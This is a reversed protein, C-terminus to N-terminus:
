RKELLVVNEVHHTHPFMDVPQVKTVRYKEDLLSLDRAQTAPNCSVYVIRQPEAFLISQIVDDHMGARPPDTIIVDPRGHENIFDQTLIDKMDGAYFLTNHIENNKSNFKADEIADEVYEIGVVKKSQRAIFNAITGTGTYLDYVLEDGTLQAFDRTVKYLNYAQESNTQYFSKPGIKFKLGEMEEYIFDNGKWTLVEQDTITDNAKQNVIYLLSTIQPFENAIANLLDEHQQKENDYFVVILMLEGTTSTRVILNRMLGGRNRLDFFTYNKDYCYQRIFNRIQNSVDDQLWCKNIDLVKDFAGPIHFGLANMNMDSFSEGSRLQELTLWKKNSFTFELKNRYFETKDSGLIPQIEPLEVKGIRTLNDTVQKQKFKLQEVYPLIQWKCGGCIGFHECFAEVRNPSYSIFRVPKGEAYKNKKRTIQLDVIDGPVVYPIFVVLDDIKAIAKGEAAIDVIQVNEILPHEKKKRGM